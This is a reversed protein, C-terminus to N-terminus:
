LRHLKQLATGTYGKTKYFCHFVPRFFPIKM